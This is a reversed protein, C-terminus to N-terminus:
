AAFTGDHVFDARQFADTGFNGVSGTFDAHQKPLNEFPSFTNCAFFFFTAACYKCNTMAAAIINKTAFNGKGSDKRTEPLSTRDGAPLIDRPIINNQTYKHIVSGM